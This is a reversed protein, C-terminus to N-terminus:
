IADNAQTQAVGLREAEQEHTENRLSVMCTTVTCSAKKTHQWTTRSPVGQWRYKSRSYTGSCLGPKSPGAMTSARTSSRLRAMRHPGQRVARM